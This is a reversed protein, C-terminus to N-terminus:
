LHGYGVGAVDTDHLVFARVAGGIDLIESLGNM